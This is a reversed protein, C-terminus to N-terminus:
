CVFSRANRDFVGKHLDYIYIIMADIGLDGIHNRAVSNEM